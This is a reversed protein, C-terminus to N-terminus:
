AAEMKGEQELQHRRLNRLQLKRNAPRLNCHRNDLTGFPNIHDVEPYTANLFGEMILRHLQCQKGRFYTRAYFENRNHRTRSVYIHLKLSAIVAYLLEDVIVDHKTGDRRTVRIIVWKNDHDRIIENPIM